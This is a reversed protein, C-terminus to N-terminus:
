IKDNKKQNKPVALWDNLNNKTKKMEKGGDPILLEEDDNISFTDTISPFKSINKETKPEDNMSEPQDILCQTQEEMESDSPPVQIYGRRDISTSGRRSHILNRLHKRVVYNIGTATSPYRRVDNMFSVHVKKRYLVFVSCLVFMIFMTWLIYFSNSHKKKRTTSSNTSKKDKEVIQGDNGNPSPKKTSTKITSLKESPKLSNITTELSVSKTTTTEGDKSWHKAEKCEKILLKTSKFEGFKKLDNQEDNQICVDGSIKRYGTTKHTKMQEIEKCVIKSPTFGMSLKCPNDLQNKSIHNDARVFGFDCEYDSMTCKCPIVNSKSIFNNNNICWSGVKLRQYVINQGLVCSDTKGILSGYKEHAKWEVYDNTTCKRKLLQQFNVVLLRWEQTPVNYAWTIAHFNNLIPHIMTETLLYQSRNYKENVFQVKQWCEGEDMSFYIYHVNRTAIILSGSDAIIINYVGNLSRQWTYGGDNSVFTDRAEENHHSSITALIFIIGIASKHSIISQSDSGRSIQLFCNDDDIKLENCLIKPANIRHWSAGRDYTIISHLKGSSQIQTTIFVGTMSKIQTFDSYGDGYMHHKELSLSFIISNQDGVYLTGENTSEENDVHMFIVNHLNELVTYFRTPSLLPLEVDMWNVESEKTRQVKRLNSGGGMPIAAFVYNDIIGYSYVMDKLSECSKTTMDYYHLSYTPIKGFLLSFTLTLPSVSFILREGDSSWQAKHIDTNCIAEWKLGCDSSYYLIGDISIAAVYNTKKPNFLISHKLEFPALVTHWNEGGDTTVAFTNSGNLSLGNLIFFKNNFQSRQLGNKQRLSIHGVSSTINEFTKGYDLSRYVTSKKVIQAMGFLSRHEEMTALLLCGDNESCWTMAITHTRDYKFSFEETKLKFDDSVDRKCDESSIETTVHNERFPKTIKSYIDEEKLSFVIPLVYTFLILIARLVTSM